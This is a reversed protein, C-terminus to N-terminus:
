RGTNVSGEGWSGGCLIRVLLPCVTGWRGSIPKIRLWSAAPRTAMLVTCSSTCCGWAAPYPHGLSPQECALLVPFSVPPPVNSSPPPTLTVANGQLQVVLSWLSLMITSESVIPWATDAM